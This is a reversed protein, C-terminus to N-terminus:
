TAGMGIRGTSEAASRKPYKALIAEVKKRHTRHLEVLELLDLLMADDVDRETGTGVRPAGMRRLWYDIQRRSVDHRRTIEKTKM